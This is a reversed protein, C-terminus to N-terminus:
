NIIIQPDNTEIKGRSDMVALAYTYAGRSADARVALNVHGLSDSCHVDGRPVFPSEFSLKGRRVGGKRLRALRPVFRVLFVAFPENCQFRLQDGRELNLDGPFEQGNISKVIRGNAVNLTVRYM